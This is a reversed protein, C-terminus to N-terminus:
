FKPTAKIVTAAYNGGASIAGVESLPKLIVYYRTKSTVTLEHSVSIPFYVVQYASYGTNHSIFQTFKNNTESSSSTSLSLYLGILIGTTNAAFTGKFFLDWTGIPVDIQLNGAQKWVGATPSSVPQDTANVVEHIWKTIDMPFGVPAHGSSYSVNMISSDSLSYDTGGYLTIQTAGGSYSGVASVKFYKTTGGNTLRVKTGINIKGTMNANVSVVYTKVSADASVYSWTNLDLMWGEAISVGRRMIDGEEVPASFDEGIILAKAAFGSVGTASNRFAMAAPVYELITETYVVSTKNSLGTGAPANNIAVVNLTLRQNATLGTITFSNKLGNWTGLTADVYGGGIDYQVKNIQGSSQTGGYGTDQIEINVVAETEARDINVINIIPARFRKILISVHESYPSVQGEADIALVWYTTSLNEKGTTLNGVTYNIDKTAATVPASGVAVANGQGFGIYYTFSNVSGDARHTNYSAPRSVTFVVAQGEYPENVDVLVSPITPTIRYDINFSPSYSWESYYHQGNYLPTKTRVAVVAGPLYFYQGPQLSFHSKIDVTKGAIGQDSTYTDSGILLEYYLQNQAFIGSTDAAASWQFTYLGTTVTAGAQPATFTPPTPVPYPPTYNVELYPAYETGNEKAYFTKDNPTSENESVLKMGYYTSTRCENIFSTIPWSKWTDTTINGCTLGTVSAAAESDPSNNWTLTSENWNTTLRYIKFTLTAAYYSYSACLNLTVSNIVSGVPLNDIASLPFYLFVRGYNGSAGYNGLQLSLGNKNENPEGHDAWCDKTAYIKLTAM